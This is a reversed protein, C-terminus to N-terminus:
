QKRTVLASKDFWEIQGSGYTICVSGDEVLTVDKVINGIQFWVPTIIIDGIQVESIKIIM